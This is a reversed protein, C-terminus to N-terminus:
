KCAELCLIMCHVFELILGGLQRYWTEKVEDTKVVINRAVVCRFMDCSAM